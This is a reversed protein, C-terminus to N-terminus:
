FEVGSFNVLMKHISSTSYARYTQLLAFESKLSTKTATATTQQQKPARNYTGRSENFQYSNIKQGCLVGKNSWNFSRPVNWCGLTFFLLHFRKHPHTTSRSKLQFNRTLKVHRRHM